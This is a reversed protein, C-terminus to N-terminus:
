LKAFLERLLQRNAADLWEDGDLWFIWAGTAHRLSENRAAAFSDVWAFDFVRAGLVAAVEGARDRWGTDVLIMEDALDAVSGLCIPLNAEENKAIMCLSVRPRMVPSEEDM